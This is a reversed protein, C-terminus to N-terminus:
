NKTYYLQAYCKYSTWATDHTCVVISNITASIMASFTGDTNPYPLALGLYDIFGNVRIFQTAGTNHKIAKQTGSSPLNGCDVTKAYVPKGNHRETTRYEVGVEMPPNLWEQVGDVTRYFCGPHETSEIAPAAGLEEATPLWDGPRKNEQLARFADAPTPDLIDPCIQEALDDPLVSAKNYPTGEVLPQDDRTMTIVFAEGTQMKQLEAATIVAKYQGPAGSQRDKM